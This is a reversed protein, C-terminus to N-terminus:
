RTRAVSEIARILAEDDDSLPRPEAIPLEADTLFMDAGAKLVARERQALGAHKLLAQWLVERDTEKMGCAILAVPTNPSRGYPPTDAYLVLAFGPERKKDPRSESVECVARGLIATANVDEQFREAARESVILAYLNRQFNPCNIRRLIVSEDGIWPSL